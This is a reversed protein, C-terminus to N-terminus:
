TVISCNGEYKTRPYVWTDTQFILEWANSAKISCHIISDCTYLVRSPPIKFKARLLFAAQRVEMRTHGLLVTQLVTQNRSFRTRKRVNSGDIRM